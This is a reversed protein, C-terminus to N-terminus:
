WLGPWRRTRDAEQAATLGARGDAVGRQMPLALPPQRWCDVSGISRTCYPPPVPPTEEPRCYSLGRDLRVASCDRGALVSVVADPPTRGIIMTSGITAAALGGTVPVAAECGPLLLMALWPLTRNPM